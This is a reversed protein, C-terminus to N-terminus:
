LIKLMVSGMALPTASPVLEQLDHSIKEISSQIDDHYRDKDFEALGLAYFMNEHMGFKSKHAYLVERAKTFYDSKLKALASFAAALESLHDDSIDSANKFRNILYNEAKRLKGEDVKAGLEKM